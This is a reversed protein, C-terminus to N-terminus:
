LMRPEDLEDESGNWAELKEDTVEVPNERLDNMHAWIELTELLEDIFSRNNEKSIRLAVDLVTESIELQVFMRGKERFTTM